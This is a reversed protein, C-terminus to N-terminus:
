DEGERIDDNDEKVTAWGATKIMKAGCVPYYPAEEHEYIRAYIRCEPCVAHDKLKM